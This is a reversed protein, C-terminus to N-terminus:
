SASDDPRHGAVGLTLELRGDARQVARAARFDPIVHDAAGLAAAPYTTALAVVQAGAARGAAIGFNTDEFVVAAEPSRGLRSAGLRYGDPAPKGRPVVESTVLHAPLPLGAAGLRLEALDRGSSTVIAWRDPPLSGVFEVAGPIACVGDLDELEAQDLWAVERDLDADIGISRLTDRTRRGHAAELLPALELGKMAAWRRWVREIVPTSDVLVGDMDFLILECLM